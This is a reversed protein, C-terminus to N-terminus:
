QDILKYYRDYVQKNSSLTYYGKPNHNDKFANLVIAMHRLNFDKALREPLKAAKFRSISYRLVFLNIDAMRMLPISDSVLGVPASDLIIYDYNKKLIDLLYRMLDSHLLEAPHDPVPGAPLFDLNSYKTKMCLKDITIIGTLYSSLGIDNSMQFTKHLQSKRLDTAIILVRKNILCLTGALNLSTFSKGEGAIESTICIVQGHKGAVLYDLNARMARISESFLSAPSEVSLIKSNDPKGVQNRISGIIPIRSSEEISEVDYLYPNIKRIIFISLIGLFLGALIFDKYINSAIPYVPKAGLVAQDIIQAGSTVSATSIHAELKKESLYDYVKQNINHDSQLNIYTRELIPITEISKRISAIQTGLYNQLKKNKIHQSNINNIIANRVSLLAEDLQLIVESQAPFDTLDKNKKDTLFNYKQILSILLPDEVGQLNFNPTNTEKNRQLDNHLERTLLSQIDIRHQEAELSTLRQLLKEGNSSFSLMQNTTKFQQMGEGSQQLVIAMNKLLTDIYFSTQKIALSRQTKDYQQYEKLIANLIDRAFYPNSDTYSLNLINTNQNDDIVLTQKVQALTSNQNSFKFYCSKHPGSFALVQFVFGNFHLKEGYAYQKSVKRNKLTYSLKYERENVKECLFLTNRWKGNPIKQTQILIPKQPYISTIGYFEQPLYFEIPYNLSSIAKTLVNRSYLIFKESESKSSRDYINKISILESLESKKDDVKVSANSRFDPSAMQLFLFAALVSLFTAVLLYYWKATIIKFVRLYNFDQDM